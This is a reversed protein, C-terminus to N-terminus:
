DNAIDTRYGADGWDALEHIRKEVVTFANAKVAALEAELERVRAALIREYSLSWEGQEDVRCLAEKVEDPTLM